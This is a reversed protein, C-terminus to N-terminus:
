VRTEDPLHMKKAIQEPELADRYQRIIAGV